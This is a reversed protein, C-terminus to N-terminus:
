LNERQSLVHSVRLEPFNVLPPPLPPPHPIPHSPSLYQPLSKVPHASPTLSYTPLDFELLFYVSFFLEGELM